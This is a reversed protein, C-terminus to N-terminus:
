FKKHEHVISILGDRLFYWYIEQSLVLQFNENKKLLEPKYYNFFRLWLVYGYSIETNDISEQLLFIVKW